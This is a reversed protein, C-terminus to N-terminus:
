PIIKFEEPHNRLMDDFDISADDKMELNLVENIADRQPVAKYANNAKRVYFTM